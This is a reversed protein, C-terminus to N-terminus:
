CISWASRDDGQPARIGRAHARGSQREVTVRREAIDIAIPGLRVIGTPDAAPGAARRLVAGIRARLEDMGFPKTVYDDAGAELAEVKVREDTRASLILIPTTAERRVHRVVSSGDLDPCGWTWCSSTRASPTGPM